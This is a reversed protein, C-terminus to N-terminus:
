ILEESKEDVEIFLQLSEKQHQILGYMYGSMLAILISAALLSNSLYMWGNKIVVCIYVMDGFCCAMSYVVMRTFLMKYKYKQKIWIVFSYIGVAAPIISNVIILAELMFKEGKM